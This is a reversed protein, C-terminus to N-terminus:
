SPDVWVPSSWAMEGDAQTVRLYYFRGAGLPEEDTAELAVDDDGPTLMLWDANDRVVDLRAIADTGVVRGTIHRPGDATIETGM